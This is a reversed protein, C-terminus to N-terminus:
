RIAANRQAAIAQVTTAWKSIGMFGFIMGVLPIITCIAWAIFFGRSLPEVRLDHREIFANHKTAYGGIVVILAWFTGFVPIFILGLALGPTPSTEEDQIASWARYILTCGFILNAIPCFMMGIYFGGSPHVKLPPYADHQDAIANIAGCWKVMGIIGMIVGVGPLIACIAWAIFFGRSLPQVRFNRRQAYNNYETAYSGIVRILAWFIGFIPIFSFGLAKDPTTVTQEDQIAAWAKYILRFMFVVNAIPVFLMGIYLGTSVHEM